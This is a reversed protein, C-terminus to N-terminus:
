APIPAPVLTTPFELTFTAGMGPGESSATLKGKVETAANASSHLGYGMGTSKTTYGAHFVQTQQEQTLGKGSDQVQICIRDETRFLRLILHRRDLGEMAQRANTVLNVLIELVRHRDVEIEPLDDYFREITLAPDAFLAQESIRAADDILKALNTPERLDSTVAYSQQSKVLECIHEVGRSLSEVETLAANRQSMLEASLASLFPQLHQGRADDRIFGAL